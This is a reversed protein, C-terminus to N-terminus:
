RAGIWVIVHEDKPTRERPGLGQIQVLGRDKWSTVLQKVAGEWVLPRELVTALLEGFKMQGKAKLVEQMHEGALHMRLAHENEFLSPGLVPPPADVTAFLDLQGTRDVREDRKAVHRVNDQEEVCQKEVKRFEKLGKIHRTGYVLYFYSRDVTPKLIKTSTVYAFEGAKRLRECYLDVISQERDGSENLAAEWGPGGFLEDFTAATEPRPDELFRNIHDFMFNILVECRQHKLIPQIQKLGFGTWGTPDIFFLAFSTGVFRLIEPISSEFEGQITHVTMDTVKETAAVLQRYRAPDSEIFLCRVQPQKGAASLGTRVARLKEVAIMFSTDSYDDGESRWPGSFCDVYVFDPRFFGIHYAVRELYQELFFHKAYTQLRGKYYEPPRL